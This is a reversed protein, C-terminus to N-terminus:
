KNDSNIDEYLKDLGTEFAGIGSFFSSVKLDDFLCPMAEYLEIFIYYVVNVAISNGVQKYLQTDSIEVAKVKEYDEDSFGMLRLGEKPTLRRIRIEDNTIEVVANGEQQM